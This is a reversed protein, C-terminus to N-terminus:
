GFLVVVLQTHLCNEAQPGVFPPCLGQPGAPNKFVVQPGAVGRRRGPTRPSFFGGKPPM